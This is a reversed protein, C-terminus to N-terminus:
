TMQDETRRQVFIVFGNDLKVYATTEAERDGAGAGHGHSGLCVKRPGMTVHRVDISYPTSKVGDWHASGSAPKVSPWTQCWRRTLLQGTVYAASTLTNARSGRVCFHYSSSPTLTRSMNIYM